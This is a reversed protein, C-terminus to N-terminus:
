DLVPETPEDTVGDLHGMALAPCVTQRCEITMASLRLGRRCALALDGGESAGGESGGGHLSWCLAAAFADGAGTVDVVDVSPAALHMVGSPSTYCAGRMGRTVVVDQAGQRQLEACAADLDADTGLARGVRAALEGENLILLRLGLLSAPLRAMKPESVAVLVLAVSSRAAEDLLAAISETPLNLDAVVLAAGARQQQRTALFAPTLRDNLAMDALAVMLEGHQDLVATYTGSSAGDLRLAGRTDIGADEAHALLARGSADNGVATILATPAGLRALNEAINRAVGGFSEDQTAPNSSGPVLPGVSRLKRDLNAAGICLIPRQDPLVYARGLIRRERVLTAIYNAVASRSLGLASALDQQSIFPNARILEYLQEKKPLDTVTASPYPNFLQKLM